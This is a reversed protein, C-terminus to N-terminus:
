ILPGFSHAPAQNHPTFPRLKLYQGSPLMAGNLAAIASQAGNQDLFNIIGLGKSTGDPNLPCHCGGFAIAGFPSFMRLLDNHSSDSPLGSVFVTNEDNQWEGGPFTNSQVLHSLADAIGGNGSGGKVTSAM